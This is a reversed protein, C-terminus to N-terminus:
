STVRPSWPLMPGPIVRCQVTYRFINEHNQMLKAIEKGSFYTLLDIYAHQTKLYATVRINKIIFKSFPHYGRDRGKRKRGNKYNRRNGRGGRMEGLKEEEKGKRRM